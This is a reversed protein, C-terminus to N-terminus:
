EVPRWGDFSGFLFRYLNNEDVKLKKAIVKIPLPKEILLDPIGLKVAVFIAESLWVKRIFGLMKNAHDINCTKSQSM